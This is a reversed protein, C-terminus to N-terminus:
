LNCYNEIDILNSVLSNYIAKIRAICLYHAQIEMIFKVSRLVRNAIKKDRKREM